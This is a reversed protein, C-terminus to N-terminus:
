FGLAKLLASFFGFGDFPPIPIMNFLFLFGNIRKNFGWFFRARESLNGHRLLAFAVLFLLLNVGPGAFSILADQWPLPTGLINIYAPVFFVIPANFAALAVGIVLWMVPISFVAQLGFSLAVIKHGFEHLIIAPAVLLAAIGLGKLFSHHRELALSKRFIFGVAVTMIAINLLEVLSIM